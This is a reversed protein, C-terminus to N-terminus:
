RIVLQFFSENGTVNKIGVVRTETVEIIKDVMLFPYRHPLLKKIAELDYLPEKTPDYVPKGKLRRIELFKTKLFKTLEINATHGPQTAIIKAKIPRALLSLDGILDLLKHKALANDTQPNYKLMETVNNIGFSEGLSNLDSEKLSGDNIIIANDISGGKIL